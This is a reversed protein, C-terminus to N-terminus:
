GAASVRPRENAQSVLYSGGLAGLKRANAQSVTSADAAKSRRRGVAPHERNLCYSERISGPGM